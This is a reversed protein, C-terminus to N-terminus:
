RKRFVTPELYHMKAWGTCFRNMLRCFDEQPIPTNNTDSSAADDYVKRQAYLFSDVNSKYIQRDNFVRILQGCCNRNGPVELTEDEDSAARKRSKKQGAQVPQDKNALFRQLMADRM